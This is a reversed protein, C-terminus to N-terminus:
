VVPGSIGGGAQVGSHTHLLFVKGDITAPGSIDVSTAGTIDVNIGQLTADGNAIVNVDGNVSASLDGTVNLDMDTTSTITVTQAASININQGSVSATGSAALTINRTADVIVDRSSHVTLDRATTINVDRAATVGVDRAAVVTIDNENLGIVVTGADNRIQTDTASYGALNRKQNRLGFLALGDSLSHRRQSQVVNNLGGNQFWSDLETDSFLVLCEDGVAIPFTLTWGGAGILVIPVGVLLPVQCQIAQIDIPAGPAATNMQILQSTVLQVDVTATDPYFAVVSGVAACRLNQGIAISLNSFRAYSPNLRQDIPPGFNTPDASATVTTSFIPVSSM